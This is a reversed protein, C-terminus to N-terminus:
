RKSAKAGLTLAVPEGFIGNLSFLHLTEERAALYLGHREALEQLMELDSQRHQIIYQLLPTDEGTQVSLGHPSALERALDALSVQTHARVSGNKRLRHLLDYARVRFSNTDGEDLMTLEALERLMDLVDQKTDAM